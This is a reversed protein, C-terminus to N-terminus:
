SPLNECCMYVGVKWMSSQLLLQAFEKTQSSIAPSFFEESSQNDKSGKVASSLELLLAAYLAPTDRQNRSVAAVLLAVREILAHKDAKHEEDYPITKLIFAAAHLIFEFHGDPAM